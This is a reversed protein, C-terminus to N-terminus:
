CNSPRIGYKLHLDVAFIIFIKFIYCNIEYSNETYSISYGIFSSSAKIYFDKNNNRNIITVIDGDEIAYMPKTSLALACACAFAVAFIRNCFFRKM